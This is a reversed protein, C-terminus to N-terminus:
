REVWVAWFIRMVGSLIVLAAVTVWWWWGFHALSEVVGGIGIGWSFLWAARFHDVASDTRDPPTM